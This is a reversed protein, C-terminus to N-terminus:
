LGAPFDACNCFAHAIHLLQVLKCELSRTVNIIARETVQLLLWEASASLEQLMAAAALTALNPLLDGIRRTPAM